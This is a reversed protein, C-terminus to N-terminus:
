AIWPLGEPHDLVAWALYSIQAFIKCLVFIHGYRTFLIARKDALFRGVCWFFTTYITNWVLRFHEYLVLSFYACTQGCSYLHSAWIIGPGIFFSSWERAGWNYQILTTREVNEQRYENMQYGLVGEGFKFQNTRWVKSWIESTNSNTPIM